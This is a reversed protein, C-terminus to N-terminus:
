PRILASRALTDRRQLSWLSSGKLRLRKAIAAIVGAYWLSIKELRAPTIAGLLSKFMFGMLRMSSVKAIIVGVHLRGRESLGARTYAAQQSILLSERPRTQRVM